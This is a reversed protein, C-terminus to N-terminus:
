DEPVSIWKPNILIMIVPVVLMSSTVAIGADIRLAISILLMVWLEKARKLYKLILKKRTM